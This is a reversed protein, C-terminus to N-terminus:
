IAWFFTHCLTCAAIEEKPRASHVHTGHSSVGLAAVVECYLLPAVIEEQRGPDDSCDISGDATVQLLIFNSDSLMAIAAVTELLLFVLVLSFRAFSLCCGCDHFATFLTNGRM